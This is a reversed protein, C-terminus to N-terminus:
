LMIVEYLCFLDLISFFSLFLVWRENLSCSDKLQNLRQSASSCLFIHFSLPNQKYVTLDEIILNEETHVQDLIQTDPVCQGM